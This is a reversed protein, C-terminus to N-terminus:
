KIIQFHQGEEKGGALSTAVESDGASQRANITLSDKIM